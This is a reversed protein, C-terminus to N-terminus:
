RLIVTVLQPKKDVFVVYDPISAANTLQCFFSAVRCDTEWLEIRSWPCRPVPLTFYNLKSIRSILHIKYGQLKCHFSAKTWVSSIEKKIKKSWVDSTIISVNWLNELSEHKEMEPKLILHIRRILQILCVNYLYYLRSDISYNRWM